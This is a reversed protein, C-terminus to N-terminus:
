AGIHPTIKKKLVSFKQSILPNCNKLPIELLVTLIGYCDRPMGKGQFSATFSKRGM